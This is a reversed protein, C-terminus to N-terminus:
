PVLETFIRLDKTQFLNGSKTLDLLGIDSNLFTILIIPFIPQPHIIHLLYCVSGIEVYYKNKKTNKLIIYDGTVQNKINDLQSTAIQCTLIGLIHYMKSISETHM